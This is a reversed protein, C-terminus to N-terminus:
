SAEGGNILGLKMGETLILLKFKETDGGVFQEWGKRLYDSQERSLMRPVTLVFKDGPKMELRQLDGIWSIPPSESV